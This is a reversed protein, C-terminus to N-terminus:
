QTQSAAKPEVAWEDRLDYLGQLTALLEKRWEALQEATYRDSMRGPIALLRDRFGACWRQLLEATERVPMLEREAKRAAVEAQRARAMRFRRLAEESSAGAADARERDAHAPARARADFWVRCEDVDWGEGPARAPFDQERVARSIASESLGLADALERQKRVRM